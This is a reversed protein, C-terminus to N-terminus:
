GALVNAMTMSTIWFWQVGLWQRLLLRSTHEDLKFSKKVKVSIFCFINFFIFYLFAVTSGLVSHQKTQPTSHAICIVNFITSIIMIVFYASHLLTILKLNLFRM